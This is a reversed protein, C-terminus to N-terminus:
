NKAHSISYSYRSALLQGEDGNVPKLDIKRILDSDKPWLFTDRVQFFYIEGPKANFAVAAFYVQLGKGQWSACLHHEGVDVSFYFYSSGHTAGVWTGDLGARVTPKLAANFNSDDEVFYVLAKGADPQIFPHQSKNTTVSFTVSSAGCGPAIATAPASQSIAPSAFLFFLLITRM